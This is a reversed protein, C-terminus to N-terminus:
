IYVLFHYVAAWAASCSMMLMKMSFSNQQNLRLSFHLLCRVISTGAWTMKFGIEWRQICLYIRAFRRTMDSFSTFIAHECHIRLDGVAVISEVFQLMPLNSAIWMSFATAAIHVYGVSLHLWKRSIVTLHKMENPYNTNWMLAHWHMPLLLPVTQHLKMAFCMRVIVIFLVVVVIQKKWRRWQQEIHIKQVQERWKGVRFQIIIIKNTQM